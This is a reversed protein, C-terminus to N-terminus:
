DKTQPSPPPPNPPMATPPSSFFVFVFLFFRPVLFEQLSPLPPSQPRAGAARAETPGGLGSPEATVATVKERPPGPILRLGLPDAALLSLSATSLSTTAAVEERLPSGASLPLQQSVDYQLGGAKRVVM